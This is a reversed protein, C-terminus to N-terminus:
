CRYLLQPLDSGQHVEWSLFVAASFRFAALSGIDAATCGLEVRIVGDEWIRTVCVFEMRIVGGEGLGTACGLEVRIVGDERMGTACVLEVRIVGDEQMGTACVFEVRIVGDECVRACLEDGCICWM